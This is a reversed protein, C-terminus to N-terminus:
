KSTARWLSAVDPKVLELSLNPKRLRGRIQILHRLSDSLWGHTSEAYRLRGLAEQWDGLWAMQQRYAAPAYSRMAGDRATTFESPDLEKSM